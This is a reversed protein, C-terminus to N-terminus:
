KNLIYVAAMVLLGAVLQKTQLKEGFIGVGAATVLVISLASWFVVIKGMETKKEFVRSLIYCVVAYMGVAAVLYIVGNDSGPISAYKKVCSVASAEAVCILLVLVLLNQFSLM